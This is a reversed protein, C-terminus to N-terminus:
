QIWAEQPMAEFIKELEEWEKQAHWCCEFGHTKEDVIDYLENLRKTQELYGTNKDKLIDMTAKLCDYRYTLSIYSQFIQFCQRSAAILEDKTLRKLIKNSEDEADLIDYSTLGIYDQEYGDYGALGEYVGVNGAGAAVFFIDFCKPVWEESLDCLMKEIEGCLDAFMMRFEYAEDENGDLANLLTEEDTDWFWHVEECEEQIDYLKEEITMLNLNKVIPKKYRLKKAKERKTDEANHM